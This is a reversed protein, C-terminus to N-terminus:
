KGWSKFSRPTCGYMRKVTRAFYKPDSFGSRQAAREVTEGNAILSRAYETRMDNIYAIPTKGYYEKFLVRFVTESIGAYRCVEPVTLTPEKYSSNIYSVASLFHEPLRVATESKLLIGLIEYVESTVFPVYGTQKGEWLSLCKTFAKYVAEADASSYVEPATDDTHTIFHVVIMETDTYRATYEMNQPLYLVDNTGVVYEKGRSRIVADGKIRFALASHRRPAIDFYGGSWKMHLVGVIQVIPNDGNCFM